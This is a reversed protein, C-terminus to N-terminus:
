RARGAIVGELPVLDIVLVAFAFCGLVGALLLPDVGQRDVVLDKLTEGLGNVGFIAEVVILGGLLAVLAGRIQAAREAATVEAVAPAPDVGWLEQHEAWPRARERERAARLGDFLLRGVGDALALTLGAWLVGARDYDLPSGPPTLRLVAAFVAFGAIPLPLGGPLPVRHATASLAGLLLVAIGLVALSRRGRTWLLSALSVAADERSRGSRGVLAGAAATAFFAAGDILGPPEECRDPAPRYGVGPEWTYARLCMGDRAVCVGCFLLGILGALLASRWAARAMWARPGDM